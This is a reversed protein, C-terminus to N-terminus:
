AEKRDITRVFRFEFCDARSRKMWSAVSAFRGCGVDLNLHHLSIRSRGSSGNEGLNHHEVLRRYASLLPPAKTPDLRIEM